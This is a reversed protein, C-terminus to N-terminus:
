GWGVGIPKGKRYEDSNKSMKKRGKGPERGAEMDAVLRERAGWLFEVTPLGSLRGESEEVMAEWKECLYIIVKEVIRSDYAKLLRKALTARKITWWEKLPHLTHSDGFNRELERHFWVKVDESTVVRDPQQGGNTLGFDPVRSEEAKRAARKEKVV